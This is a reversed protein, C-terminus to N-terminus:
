ENEGRRENCNTKKYKCIYAIALALAVVLGSAITFMKVYLVKKFPLGNIRNRRQSVFATYM